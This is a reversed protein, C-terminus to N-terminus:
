QLSNHSTCCRNKALTTIMPLLRHDPARLRISQRHREGRHAFLFWYTLAAHFSIRVGNLVYANHCHRKREFSACFLLSVCGQGTQLREGALQM